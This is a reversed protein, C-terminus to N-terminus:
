NIAKTLQKLGKVTNKAFHFRIVKRYANLLAQRDGLAQALALVGFTISSSEEGATDPIPVDQPSDETIQIFLGNGGDGKHLQGTSHLFRPGYGVTTALRFKKQIETRLEQLASDTRATPKIFAQIAVYSRKSGNADGSKAKGLFIKLAEELSNVKDDTFVSLDGIQLLPNQEPLKGVEQYTAVIERALVKAAEVNPQDFPNIKLFHGAIATAMEWRFFEGGLDYYDRLNIQILPHGNKKLAEVQQDYSGNSNLRLYIFIRDKAYAEPELVAEGVVPLIGVGEKGTSEAILQEVWASFPAIVDSTIFTAKDRGKHALEGLVAGLVAGSNDGHQPCNYGECNCAMSQARELLANLDVGLLGAPVLGFYTLASYRGGINPDNLFIRRFHLEKALTELGSGPDTIAIFHEGVKERGVKSLTQNYFYKMFSLTEITGGSKTSATFLTKEPNLSRAYSLAACPNTSDLVALEIYGKKVDFIQRFVEPALSSGGMGLLLAHTFGERRVRNVFTQIDELHEMMNEPSHLWGLRNTIEAPQQKWVTHDHEWIRHVIREKRLRELSTNVMSQYGNLNVVFSKKESLLSNRKEAIAKMLKDFSDAFSTVGDKQLTETVSDLDIGLEKLQTLQNKAQELGQTITSAVEGHAQFAVFTAPPLTNVTNNGILNDVYLTDSYQPNKTGTSAWLVRQVRAGADALKKWRPGSFINLFEDYVAKANAIAITGQLQKNGIEELARDVATDVRSIFFSAVSAIKHLDDNDDLRQELGRLYAEAVSRYHELSFLRTVNINIGDGLLETIAPIAAPTAPVKIMVNPRNLKAFLRRAEQITGNTDHALKPNVELSVYGDLGDTFEYVHRFLDAARGIDELVLSEYTEEISKKADALEKLAADYDASGAIAREFITPNSTIGRLGEDILRQLEGTTIFARRIYDLWISQGLQSLKRLKSM